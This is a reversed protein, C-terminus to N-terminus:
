LGSLNLKARDNSPNIKIAIEYYKKANVKDGLLQYCVGINAANDSNDQSGLKWAKEYSIVAKQYNKKDFFCDGIILYYSGDNQTKDLYYYASDCNATAVYCQSLNEFSEEPKMPKYDLAVKYYQIAKAYEGKLQHSVGFSHNIEYGKNYVKYAKLNYDYAKDRFMQSDAGSTSIALLNNSNALGINSRYANPFVKVASEFITQSNKWDKNREYTLFAFVISVLGFFGFAFNKAKYKNSVFVILSLVFISTGLSPFFVFREAFTAAIKFIINSNTAFPIFFMLLGFSWMSKSKFGQIVIYILGLIIALSVIFAVSSITYLEFSGISYDASLPFPLFSMKFYKLLLVIETAFRTLTNETQFLANNIPIQWSKDESLIFNGLTAKRAFFYVVLSFFLVGLVKASFPKYNLFYLILPVLVVIVITNEKSFLALLTFVAAFLLSIINQKKSYEIFSLFASVSFILALIEDQSKINAVVETHIPHVVFFLCALLSTWFDFRLKKLFYFVLICLIGYLFISMAHYSGPNKKFFQYQIGFFAMSLPRFTNKDLASFGALSPKSILDGVGKFGKITYQNLEIMMTDDLAFDNKRINSYILFSVLFIIIPALKKM